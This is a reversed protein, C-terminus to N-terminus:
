NKKSFFLIINKPIISICAFRLYRGHLRRRIFDLHKRVAPNMKYHICVRKEPREVSSRVEPVCPRVRITGHRHTNSIKPLVDVSQLVPFIIAISM